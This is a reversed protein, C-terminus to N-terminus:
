MPFNQLARGHIYQATRKSVHLREAIDYWTIYKGSETRDNIYKLRLVAREEPDKMLELKELIDAEKAIYAAIVRMYSEVLEEIAVEADSLDRRNHSGPVGTHSIAKVRKKKKELEEIRSEIADADKKEGQYAKLYEKATM